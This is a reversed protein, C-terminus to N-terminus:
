YSDDFLQDDADWFSDENASFDEFYESEDEIIPELEIWVKDFADHFSAEHDNEDSSEQEEEESEDSSNENYFSIYREEDDEEAESSEDLWLQMLADNLKFPELDIDIPDAFDEEESSM